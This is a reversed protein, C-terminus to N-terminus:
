KQLVPKEAAFRGDLKKLLANVNKVMGKDFLSINRDKEKAAAWRLLLGYLAHEEPGRVALRFKGKREGRIGKYYLWYIRDYEANRFKRKDRWWDFHHYTENADVLVLASVLPEAQDACQTVRIPEKIGLITPPVKEYTARVVKIRDATLGGPDGARGPPSVVLLSLAIVVLVPPSLRSTM